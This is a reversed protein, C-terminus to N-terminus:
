PTTTAAVATIAPSRHIDAKDRLAKLQAQAAEARRRNLLFQEIVPRAQAEAVPAAVASVLTMARVSQGMPVVLTQGEGLAALKGLLDLPLSEPTRTVQQVNNRLGTAAVARAVSQASNLAGLQAELAPVNSQPMEIDIEQFVYVRRQKFLVPNDAYYRAVEDAAPRAVSGTARELYAQALTERRGAELALLVTPERDIKADLAAQVLLEQDILRDLAAGPASAGLSPADLRQSLAFNLQHVSIEGKNVVAAVQGSTPEKRGSCAAVLCACVAPMLLRGHISLIRLLSQMM